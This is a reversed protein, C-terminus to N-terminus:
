PTKPPTALDLLTKIKTERDESGFRHDEPGYATHLGESRPRSEVTPATSLGDAGGISCAPGQSPRRGTRSRCPERRSRCASVALGPGAVRPPTWRVLGRAAAGCMLAVFASVLWLYIAPAGAPVVATM